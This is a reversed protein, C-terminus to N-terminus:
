GVLEPSVYRASVSREERVVRERVWRDFPDAGAVRLVDYDRLDTGYFIYQERRDIRYALDTGYVDGFGNRVTVATRDEDVDIRYDGREQTVFAFSPTDIEITDGRDLVRVHLAVSGETVEFQALRNDFNLITLATRPAMRLSAGGLQLEVQGDASWLRDGIWLPRNIRAQVWQESGAPAFSANGSLYSLRVARDPPDALAPVAALSVVLGALALLAHGAHSSLWHPRNM